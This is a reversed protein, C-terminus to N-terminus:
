ADYSEGKECSQCVRFELNFYPTDVPCTICTAGDFYPVNAPCDSITKDSTQNNFYYANWENLPRGSFILNNATNPNTQKHVTNVCAHLNKDFITPSVCSSCKNADYSYIPSPEVCVICDKGDFFPTATPCPKYNAMASSKTINTIVDSPASGVSIWSPNAINSYYKM